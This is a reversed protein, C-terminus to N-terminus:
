KDKEGVHIGLRAVNAMFTHLVAFKLLNAIQQRSIQEVAIIGFVLIISIGVVKVQEVNVLHKKAYIVKGGTCVTGVVNVAVIMTVVDLMSVNRPVTVAVLKNMGLVEMKVSSNAQVSANVIIKEFM